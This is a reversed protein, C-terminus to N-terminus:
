SVVADHAAAFGGPVRPFLRSDALAAKLVLTSAGVAIGLDGLDGSRIEAAAVQPDKDRSLPEIADLAGTVGATSLADCLGARIKPDPERLYDLAEPLARAGIEEVYGRAQRARHEVQGLAAPQALGLPDCPEAM